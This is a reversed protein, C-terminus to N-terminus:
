PGQVPSWNNVSRSEDPIHVTQKLSCHVVDVGCQMKINFGHLPFALYGPHIIGMGETLLRRDNPNRPYVTLTELPHNKNGDTHACDTQHNHMVGSSVGWSLLFSEFVSHGLPLFQLFQGDENNLIDVQSKIIETEDVLTGGNFGLLVFIAIFRSKREELLITRDTASDMVIKKKTRKNMRSMNVQNHM